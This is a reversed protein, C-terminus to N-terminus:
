DFSGPLYQENNKETGNLTLNILLNYPVGHAPHKIETDVWDQVM